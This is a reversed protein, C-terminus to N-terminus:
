DEVYAVRNNRLIEAIDDLKRHTTTDGTEDAGSNLFLKSYGINRVDIEQGLPVGVRASLEPIKDLNIGIGPVSSNKLRELEEAKEEARLKANREQFEKLGMGSQKKTLLKDLVIAAGTLLAAGAVIPGGLALAGMGVKGIAAGSSVAAATNAAALKAKAAALGLTATTLIGYASALSMAATGIALLGTGIKLITVVAEKNASVWDTLKIVHTQLAEAFKIITPGLAEGVAFTLKKVTLWLETMSDNFKAAAAAQNTSIELGLSKAKDLLAQIGSAGEKLFPLLQTGSRGFLEM